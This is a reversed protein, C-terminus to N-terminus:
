AFEPILEYVQRIGALVQPYINIYKSEKKVEGVELRIELSVEQYPLRFCMTRGEKWYGANERLSEKQSEALKATMEKQVTEDYSEVYSMGVEGDVNNFNVESEGNLVNWSSTIEGAMSAEYSSALYYWFNPAVDEMWTDSYLYSGDSDYYFHQNDETKAAYMTGTEADVLLKVVADSSDKVEIYWLIFNVGKAYDDSYIVYQKWQNVVVGEEWFLVPIIDLEILATFIGEYLGVGAQLFDYVEQTVELNQSAVYFEEGAALGEAFNLLRKYLSKEYTTGLAEVDVSEKEDLITKACLLSDQVQFIVQPLYFAIAVLLVLACAMGLRKWSSRRLRSKREAGPQRKRKIGHQRKREARSQIKKEARPQIKKEARHREERGVGSTREGKLPKRGM